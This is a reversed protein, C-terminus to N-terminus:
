LDKIILVTEDLDSIISYVKTIYSEVTKEMRHKLKEIEFNLRYKVNFIM